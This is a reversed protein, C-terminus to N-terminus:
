RLKGGLVQAFIVTATLRLAWCIIIKSMALAQRGSDSLAYSSVAGADSFLSPYSYLAYEPVEATLRDTRLCVMELAGTDLYALLSDNSDM